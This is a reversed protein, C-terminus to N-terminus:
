DPHRNLAHHHEGEPIPMTPFTARIDLFVAELEWSRSRGGIAVDQLYISKPLHSRLKVPQKFPASSVLVKSVKELCTETSGEDDFIPSELAGLLQSVFDGERPLRKNASDWRDVFERLDGVTMPVPQPGLSSRPSQPSDSGKRARELTYGARSVATIYDMRGYEEMAACAAVTAQELLRLTNDSFDDSKITAANAEYVRREEYIRKKTDFLLRPIKDGWNCHGTKRM